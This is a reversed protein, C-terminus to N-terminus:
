CYLEVISMLDGLDFPKRLISFAGPMTSALRSLEADGPTSATMVCVPIGALAPVEDKREILTAGDMGPMMLDVLILSPPPSDLLIALAENGDRATKTRHGFDEDLIDALTTRITTEDDVVLLYGGNCAVVCM